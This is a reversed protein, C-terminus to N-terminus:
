NRASGSIEMQRVFLYRGPKRVMRWIAMHLGYPRVIYNTGYITMHNQIAIHGNLFLRLCSSAQLRPDSGLLKAISCFEIVRGITCHYMGYESAGNGRGAAASAEL